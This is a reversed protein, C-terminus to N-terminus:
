ELIKIIVAAKAEDTLTDNVRVEAFDPLKSKLIMSFLDLLENLGMGRLEYEANDM